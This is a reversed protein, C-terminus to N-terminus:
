PQARRAASDHPVDLRTKRDASGLRPGARSTRPEPEGTLACRYDGPEQLHGAAVVAGVRRGAFTGELVKMDVQGADGFGARFEGTKTDLSLLWGDATGVIIQPPIAAEGPWYSIGRTAPTHGLDKVWIEKGTDPDLAVLRNYATSLYMVGDIVLPTAESQRNRNM